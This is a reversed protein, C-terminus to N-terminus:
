GAVGFQQLGLGRRVGAHRERLHRHAHHQGVVFQARHQDADVHRQALRDLRHRQLPHQLRQADRVAGAADSPRGGRM